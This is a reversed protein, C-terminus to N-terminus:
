QSLASVNRATGLTASLSSLAKQVQTFPADSIFVVDGDQVAFQRALLMQGPRRMDFQYVFPRSDMPAGDAQARPRLLFLARPDATSDALGRSDAVADLVSYNRKTIKVRGQAGAAGIVMVYQQIANVVISDGSRLAIDQAADRYIDSLRVTASVTDRRVTVSTQEPDTQDPSALSLAASLRLMGQGIPYVGAKTVDGQVTVLSGHQATTMFHVDSAIVLGRLRRLLLMRADAPTLGAVDMEGVYPLQITGDRGITFTGLDSGGNAGPPFVQLGDREWVVVDVGDGPAFTEYNVPQATLFSSPFSAIAPERMAAVTDPTVPTLTIQSQKDATHVESLLPGSRPLMCGELLGGAILLVCATM